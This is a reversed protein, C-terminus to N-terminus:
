LLIRSNIGTYYCIVCSSAASLMIWNCILSFAIMFGSHLSWVCDSTTPTTPRFETIKVFLPFITMNQNLTWNIDITHSPSLSIFLAPHCPAVCCLAVAQQLKPYNQSITSLTAAKWILDNAFTFSYRISVNVPTGAYLQFIHCFHHSIKFHSNPPLIFNQGCLCCQHRVIWGHFPKPLPSKFMHFSNSQRM